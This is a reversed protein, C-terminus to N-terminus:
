RSREALLEGVTRRLVPHVANSAIEALPVLVFRREHLRPHPIQLDTENIVVDDYLLLDLDLPRAANRVGAPRTRGLDREIDLLVRLLERPALSTKLAAAGNLYKPQGPACDVPDTEIFASVREVAVDARAALRAVGDRLNAERDGLNGGLGIYANHELAAAM